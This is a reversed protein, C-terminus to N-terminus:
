RSIKSANQYKMGIELIFAMQLQLQNQASKDFIIKQCNISGLAKRAREKQYVLTHDPLVFGHFALQLNPEANCFARAM